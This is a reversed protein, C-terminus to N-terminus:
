ISSVFLPYMSDYYDGLGAIIFLLLHYNNMIVPLHNDRSKHCKGNNKTLEIYTGNNNMIVPRNVNVLYIYRM